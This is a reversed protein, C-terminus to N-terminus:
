IGDFTQTNYASNSSADRGGFALLGESTIFWRYREYWERNDQQKIVIKKQIATDQNRLREIQDLLNEKLKKSQSIAVNWKRLGKM